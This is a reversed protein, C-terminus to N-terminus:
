IGGHCLALYKEMIWVAVEKRNPAIMYRTGMDQLSQVYSRLSDENVMALAAVIVSDPDERSQSLVAFGSFIGGAFLLIMLLLKKM